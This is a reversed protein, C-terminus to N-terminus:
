TTKVQKTKKRTQTVAKRKKLQKKGKAEEFEKQWENVFEQYVAEFETLDDIWLDKNTKKKLCRLQQQLEEIEFRLSALKEETFSSIPCDILYSYSGDFKKFNFEELTTHIEAKKKKYIVITDDMIYKFFIEKHKLKSLNYRLNKIMMQRRKEYYDLRLHFFERLIDTPSEYKKLQANSDFAHMNSTLINTFLHFDKMLHDSDILNDLVTKNEFEIDFIPEVSSHHGTYEKITKSNVCKELFEKYANFSKGGIPLEKIRITTDNLRDYVGKCLFANDRVAEITGAFGLYWPTLPQLQSSEDALLCRIRNIIDLPNFYPIDTSYGTGIGTSGNILVMPLIPLYWKPEIRNSDVQNYNLLENDQQNFLVAAIKTLKTYIYRHSASDKGNELRSGFGGDPILLNINNAGVFNQAMNVITSYLSQEGHEYHSKESVYAGLQAVKIETQNHFLKRQFCGWLVKRQSPKLGDLVCPISRVNDSMSFHILEKNIFDSYTVDTQDAEIIEEENYNQLWQKRDNSRSKRFALDLADDANPDWHYVIKHKDLNSFYERAEKATSTGLGKYFKETWGKGDNNQQKWRRHGEKNYFSISRNGKRVKILPTKFSLVFNPVQSLLSRWQAHLFNIGLGKIHSGDTNHVIMEGIGAQFHHNETELDYVWQEGKTPLPILKKIKHPHKSQQLKTYGITFVTPKDTRCNIRVKYGLSKCVYYIGMSGIQQCVDIQRTNKNDRMTRAGDGDYVGRLFESRVVHSGNLIIAPVKKYRRHDYFLESYTEVVHKTKKGGNLILKYCMSYGRKTSNRDPIITWYKNDFDNYIKRVKSQLDHLFDLNKNSISWCFSTRNFTYERPRNARKHAYKWKYIGATGDAFFFGMVYAEDSSVNEIDPWEVYCKNKYTRVVEVLQDRNLNSRGQHNLQKVIPDLKRGSLEAFNDPIPIDPNYLNPFSHLLETGVTCQSPKIENSDSKVLSHDETCDVLGTHTLVRYIQKTVKHRIIKKINTWGSETWVQYETDSIEKQNTPNSVWESMQIDDITKIDILGNKKVLLPTDATVSDQDTLYMISGYRLQSQSTYVKGQELGLIKKICSIEANDLQKQLSVDKVNLIKGRLPFVGYREKGIVALGSMAFTKASDGETLILTCQSSKNKKGAWLADELKPIGRVRTQIKGDTKKMSLEAKKDAIASAYAMIDCKKALTNIFKDPLEPKFGWSSMNSTLEEKTQSSFTPNVIVSRLFLCLHDRIYSSRLTDQKCKEKLKTVIQQTIYNVHKGGKFTNIGNVFSVQKFGDTSLCATVEWTIATSETEPSILEAYARPTEKPEGIYLNAYNRFTKVNIADGNFFVTVKNNSTASADYVRTRILDFTNKTMGKLKFRAYDPIFTIKTYSNSKCNTIKPKSRELLNNCYEQVFKKGVNNDVTEVIFKTSWVNTLKAGYGNRGGTIKQEEDDFNSSTLFHGFILEPVYINEKKHIEVPIGPGNNWISIEGSERDVNVKIRTVSAHRVSHDLANVLVEDVIKMLGPVYSIEKQIMRKKGPSYIWMMEKHKTISGIYSDPRILIHERQTKKEYKCATCIQSGADFFESPKKEGCKKCVHSTM